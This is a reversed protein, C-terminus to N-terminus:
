AIAGKEAVILREQLLNPLGIRCNLRLVWDRWGLDEIPCLGALEVLKRMEQPAIAGKAPEGLTSVFRKVLSRAVLARRQTVPIIYSVAAWIRSRTASAMQRWLREITYIPLYPTVGECIWATPANSDFGSSCLTAPWDDFELDLPVFHLGSPLDGLGAVRRVKWRQTDPRDVEFVEVGSLEPMRWSRTDLGAGLIVLQRCGQGVWRRVYQDVLLMRVTNHDIVGLSAVRLAWRAAGVLTSDREFLRLTQATVGTWLSPALWDRENPSIGIGRAASVVNATTSHTSNM